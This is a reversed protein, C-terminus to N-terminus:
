NMECGVTFKTGSFSFLNWSESKANKAGVKSGFKSFTRFPKLTILVGESNVLGTNLAGLFRCYPNLGMVEGGGGGGGGGAGGAGAGFGSIKVGLGNMLRDGAALRAGEGEFWNWWKASGTGFGTGLGRPFCKMALKKSAMMFGILDVTWAMIVPYVERAIASCRRLSNQDFSPFEFAMISDFPPMGPSTGM